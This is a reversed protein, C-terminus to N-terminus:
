FRAAGVGNRRKSVCNLLVISTGGLCCSCSAVAEVDRVLKSKRALASSCRLLPPAPQGSVSILLSCVPRRCSMAIESVNGLCAGDGSYGGGEMKIDIGDSQDERAGRLRKSQRPTHTSFEDPPWTKCLELRDPTPDDNTSCRCLGM